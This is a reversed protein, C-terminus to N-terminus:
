SKKPWTYLRAKDMSPRVLSLLSPWQVNWRSQEYLGANCAKGCGMSAQQGDSGVTCYFQSLKAHM